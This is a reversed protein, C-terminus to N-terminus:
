LRGVLSSFLAQVAASCFMLINWWSAVDSIRRAEGIDDLALVVGCHSM